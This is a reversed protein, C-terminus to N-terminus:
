VHALHRLPPYQRRLKMCFYECCESVLFFASLARVLSWIRLGVVGGFRLLLRAEGTMVCLSDMRTRSCMLSSDVDDVFWFLNFPLVHLAHSSVSQVLLNGLPRPCLFQYVASSYKAFLDLEDYTHMSVSSDHLDEELKPQEPEPPLRRFTSISLPSQESDLLSHVPSLGSTRLQPAAIVNTLLIAVVISLHM